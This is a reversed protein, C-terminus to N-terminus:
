ILMTILVAHAKGAPLLSNQHFGKIIQFFLQFRFVHAKGMLPQLDQFIQRIVQDVGRRILDIVTQLFINCRQRFRGDVTRQVRQRRRAHDPGDVDFPVLDTVVDVDVVVPMELALGAPFDIIELCIDIGNDGLVQLAEADPIFVDVELSSARSAQGALGTLM